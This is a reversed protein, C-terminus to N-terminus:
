TQKQAQGFIDFIRGVEEDNQLTNAWAGTIEILRTRRFEEVVQDVDASAFSPIMDPDILNSCFPFVPLLSLSLILSHVCHLLSSCRASTCCLLLLLSYVSWALGINKATELKDGTIM